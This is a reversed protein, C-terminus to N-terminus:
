QLDKSLIEKFISEFQIEKGYTKKHCGHCLTIGNQVDFRLTDDDIFRIIHHANLIVPDGKSSRAGCLKCTFEDRNFVRKRWNFMESSTRLSKKQDKLQTRDKIYNYNNEAVHFKQSCQQSCFFYQQGRTQGWYINSPYKEVESNCEACAVKIKKSPLAVSRCEPSCYKKKNDYSKFESHCVPCGVNGSNKYNTAKDGTRNKSNWQGM